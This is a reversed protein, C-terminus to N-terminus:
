LSLIQPKETSAYHDKLIKFAAKGDNRTGHMILQLSREDLVQALEAYARRNSEAFDDGENEGTIADQVKKDVTYLHNVLRTEWIPFSEPDGNFYLLRRPGYGTSILAPSAM